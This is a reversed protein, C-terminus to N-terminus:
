DAEILSDGTSPADPEPESTIYLENKLGMPVTAGFENVFYWDSINSPSTGGDVVEPDCFISISLATM